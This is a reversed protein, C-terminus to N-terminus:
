KKFTSKESNFNCFLFVCAFVEIFM